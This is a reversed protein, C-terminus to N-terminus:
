ALQLFNILLNHGLVKKCRGLLYPIDYGDTNWGTIVTPNYKLLHM